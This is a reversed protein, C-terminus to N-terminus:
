QRKRQANEENVRRKIDKSSKDAKNGEMIYGICVPVRAIEM